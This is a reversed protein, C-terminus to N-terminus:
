LASRDASQGMNTFLAEAELGQGRYCDSQVSKADMEPSKQPGCLRFAVRSPHM